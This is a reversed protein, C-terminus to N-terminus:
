LGSTLHHSVRLTHMTQQVDSDFTRFEALHHSLTAKSVNPSFNKPSVLYVYRWTGWRGRTNLLRKPLRGWHWRSNGALRSPWLYVRCELMCLMSRRHFDSTPMRAPALLSGQSSPLCSISLSSLILQMTSSICLSPQNRLLTMSAELGIRASRVWM